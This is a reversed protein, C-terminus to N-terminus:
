QCTYLKACSDAGGTALWASGGHVSGSAASGGAVTRPHFHVCHIAEDYKKRHSSFEQLCSKSQM